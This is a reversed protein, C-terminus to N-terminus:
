DENKYYSKFWYIYNDLGKFFKTKPSWGFKKIKKAEVILNKPNTKNGIQNFRPTLNVKLKKKIYFIVDKIKIGKGTGVNLIQFGIFSKKLVQYLLNNFDDIYIYDRIENGTGFFLNKNKIIKLCADHIFQKKLGPGFITSVRLVLIDIKYKDNYNFCLKEAIAKNKAYNSIPNINTNETSKKLKNNGYVSVSSVFIIKSKKKQKSFYDLLHKISIVNKKYDQKQSISNILSTIPSAGGACHIIYDFNYNKFKKLLKNSINGNLNKKFGWKNYQYKKKWSGRGIGYCCIKRKNLNRALNRGLYGESGTILVKM